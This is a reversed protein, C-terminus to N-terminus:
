KLWNWSRRVFRRRVEKVTQQLFGFCQAYCEEWEQEKTRQIGHNDPIKRQNHEEDHQKHHGDMLELASALERLLEDTQPNGGNAAWNAAIRAKDILENLTRNGHEIKEVKQVREPSINFAQAHESENGSGSSETARPSMGHWGRMDNDAQSM